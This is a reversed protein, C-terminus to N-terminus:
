DADEVKAPLPALKQISQTQKQQAQYKRVLAAKKRELELRRKKEAMLRKAADAVKDKVAKAVAKPVRKCRGKVEIFGDKCDPKSPKPVTATATPKKAVTPTVTVAVAAKAKLADYGKQLQALQEALKGANYGEQLGQL